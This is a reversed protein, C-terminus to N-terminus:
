ETERYWLSKKNDDYRFRVSTKSVDVFKIHCESILIMFKSLEKHRSSTVLSYVEKLVFSLFSDAAILYTTRPM